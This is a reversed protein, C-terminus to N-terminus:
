TVCAVTGRVTYADPTDPDVEVLVEAYTGGTPVPTTWLPWTLVTPQLPDGYYEGDVLYESSAIRNGAADYLHANVRVHATTPITVQPNIWVFRSRCASYSTLSVEEVDRFRFGRFRFGRFRFGQIPDDAEAVVLTVTVPESTGGPTSTATYTFTVTGTFTSNPPTYDFSGDSSFNLTGTTPPTVLSASITSGAPYTDNQLVGEQPTATYTVGKVVPYLDAVAVTTPTPPRVSICAERSANSAARYRDEGSYTARFCYRGDTVPTFANSTATSTQGDVATLTKPNGAFTGSGSNCTVPPLVTSTYPGCVFFSVTGTPSGNAHSLRATLTLPTGPVIQTQGIAGDSPTLEFRPTTRFSIPVSNSVGNGTTSVAKVRCYADECAPATGDITYNVNISGTVDGGEDASVTALGRCTNNSPAGERCQQLQVSDGPQFDTGNLTLSEGAPNLDTDKDATLQDITVQPVDANLRAVGWENAFTGAALIDGDPQMAIDRVTDNSGFDFEATGPGTGFAGDFNGNGLFRALAANGSGADAQGAVVISGNRQVAVANAGSGTGIIAETRGGTSFSSDLTGDSNYRVVAFRKDPQQIAWSPHGDLGSAPTTIRNQNTGDTNMTYLGPGPSARNSGFVILDGQPGWNPDSGNETTLQQENGSAVTVKFIRHTPGNFRFYVIQAGTPSWDPREDDAGHTTVQTVSEGESGMKFINLNSGVRDSSFAIENTSSSWAPWRDSSSPSDTINDPNAGDANMVYIEDDGDRNTQFAIRTGDPSWTPRADDWTNFTLRTVDSGDINMTYIETTPTDRTSEFAIKDGDPNVDPYFDNGSANTLRQVDSGDARASYLEHQAADRNSAFFIRGNVTTNHTKGAAVIKGDQQIAVDGLDTSDGVDTRVTGGSGFSSDVSGNTNLRALGFFTPSFGTPDQYTGGVVIKDDNQIAISRAEHNGTGIVAFAKGDGDFSTDLAGSTTYRAVEFVGEPLGGSGAVVIRGSSDVAVARGSDTSFIDTVVKGDGDFGTDLSGNTNYRAVGFNNFNATGAVVIKGSAPEIAVGSAHDEGGFDTQVKGDGDFSTDLSGDTNYRAVAFDPGGGVDDGAVVIKGDAQIAVGNAPSGSGSFSTNLWGDGTFGLDLSGEAPPTAAPPLARNANVRGGTVTKGTMWSFADVSGLMRNKQTTVSASPDLAYQLAAVGAAYGTAPSTGHLYAVANDKWTSLVNWGPAAVDVSAAGYNSFSTLRDDQDSAAICVINSPTLACPKERNAEALADQDDGGADGGGNGAAVVFFTNPAANIAAEMLPAPDPGSLAAAVVKMGKQGAYTFANGIDSDLCEIAPTTSCVKLAALKVQWDVGTVSSGDNGEAGVTGAVHTGHGFDDLPDDDPASTNTDGAFDAGVLDDAFGNGDDDLGNDTENPNTWINGNLDTHTYDIGTDVVGVTVAASGTTREWAQPLDMDSGSIGTVGNVRQGANHLGWLEGFSPDNPFVSALKRVYNPQAFEVAADREYARAVAKVNSASGVDVLETRSLLLREIVRGGRRRHLDAKKADSTGSRFRVIVEGAAYKRAKPKAGTLAATSASSLTSLDLAPRKRAEAAPALALLAGIALLALALRGGVLRRGQGESRGDTLASEISRRPQRLRTSM